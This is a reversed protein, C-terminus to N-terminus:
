CTQLTYRKGSDLSLADALGGIHHNNENAADYKHFPFRGTHSGNQTVSRDGQLGEVLVHGVVPDIAGGPARGVPSYELFGHPCVVFCKGFEYDKSFAIECLATKM